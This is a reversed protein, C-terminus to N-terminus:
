SGHFIWVPTRGVKRAVAGFRDGERLPSGGCVPVVAAFKGAHEAALGWAGFGGMSVGALYLRRRDGGFEGVTQELAAMVMREMRPDHWYQGSRCQPLLVVAPMQELYQAALAGGAGSAPVFGGEGRQGIGHLFVLVPVDKRGRLRAPVYVQYSYSEGGVGVTRTLLGAERGPEAAPPAAAFLGGLLLQLFLSQM